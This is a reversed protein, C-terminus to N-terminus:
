LSQYLHEVLNNNDEHRSVCCGNQLGLMQTIKVKLDYSKILWNQLTIATKVTIKKLPNQFHKVMRFTM